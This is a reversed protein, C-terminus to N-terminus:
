VLLRFTLWFTKCHDWNRLITAGSPSTIQYYNVKTSSAPTYVVNSNPVQSAMIAVRLPPPANKAHLIVPDLLVLFAQPM